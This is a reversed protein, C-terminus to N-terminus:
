TKLMFLGHHDKYALKEIILVILTKYDYCRQIQGM